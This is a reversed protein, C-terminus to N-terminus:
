PSCGPPVNKLWVNKPSAAASAVSANQGNPIKTTSAIAVRYLGDTTMARLLRDGM